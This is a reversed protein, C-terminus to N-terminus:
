HHIPHDDWAKLRKSVDFARALVCGVRDSAFSSYPWDASKEVLGLKVPADRCLDMHQWYVQPNRIHHEWFRRQWIGRERRALQSASTIQRPVARSFRTKIQRWRTSFDCDGAPLTWICRMHDPLVVWADVHFPQQRRTLGVAGRLADIEDILLTSGRQALCVVFYLTAGPARPRLYRSM